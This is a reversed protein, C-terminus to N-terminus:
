EETQHSTARQGQKLRLMPEVNQSIVKTIKVEHRGFSAPVTTPCCCHDCNQSSLSPSTSLISHSSSEKSNEVTKLIRAPVSVCVTSPSSGERSTKKEKALVISDAKTPSKRSCVSRVVEDQTEPARSVGVQTTRRSPRSHLGFSGTVLSLCGAGCVSPVDHSLGCSLRRFFGSSGSPSARTVRWSMSSSLFSVADVHRVQSSFIFRVLPQEKPIVPRGEVRPPSLSM